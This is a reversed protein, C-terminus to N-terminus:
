EHENCGVVTFRALPIVEVVVSVRDGDGDPAAGIGVAIVRLRPPTEKKGNQDFGSHGRLRKLARAAKNDRRKAPFLLSKRGAKPNPSMQTVLRMM